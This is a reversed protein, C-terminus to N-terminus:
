DEHRAVARGEFQLMMSSRMLAFAADPTAGIVHRRERSILRSPSSLPMIVDLNQRRYSPRQAPLIRMRLVLM